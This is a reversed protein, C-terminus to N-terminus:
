RCVVVIVCVPMWAEHRLRRPWQSRGTLSQLLLVSESLETILWVSHPCPYQVAFPTLTSAPTIQRELSSARRTINLVDGSRENKSRNWWGACGLLVCM